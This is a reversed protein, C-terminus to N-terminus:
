QQNKMQLAIERHLDPGLAWGESTMDRRYITRPTGDAIDIVFLSRRYGRGNQGVASIDVTYQHGKDTIRPGVQNFQSTDLVETLWGVTTLSDPNNQRWSVIREADGEELGPLTAIVEQSATNINILGETFDNTSTTLSDDIEAFEDLSLDSRSYWQLLNNINGGGVSSLVQNARNDDFTSTLLEQMDNRESILVRPEGNTQSGPTRSYVTVYELLGFDLVGDRNDQPPTEDGDNENPDLIGNRNTDEGYLLEASAGHVLNLEELTEFPANKAEYPIPYSLYTNSEAGLESVEDDEDRWDIIADAFEDTMYPLLALEDATAINLNLKGAEDILGFYPAQYDTQQPDRGVVWAVSHGIELAERPYETYDPIQGEDELNALMEKLYRQTGEVAFGAQVGAESNTAAKIEMVMSHSFYIAVSVLGFTIWMVIIIVGARQSNSHPLNM